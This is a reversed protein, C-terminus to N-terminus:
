PFPISLLANMNLSLALGSTVSIRNPLSGSTAAASATSRINASDSVAAEGFARERRNRLHTTEKNSKM